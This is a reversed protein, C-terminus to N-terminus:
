PVSRGLVDPQPRMSRDKRNVVGAASSRGEMLTAPSRVNPLMRLHAVKSHAQTAQDFGGAVVECGSQALSIRPGLTVALDVRDVAVVRQHRSGCGLVGGHLGRLCPWASLLEVWRM